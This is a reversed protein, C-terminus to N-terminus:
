GRHKAKRPGMRRARGEEEKTNMKLINLLKPALLTTAALIERGFKLGEPPRSGRKESHHFTVGLADILGLTDAAIFVPHMALPDTRRMHFYVAAEHSDLMMGDEAKRLFWQKWYRGAGRLPPLFVGAKQLLDLYTALVDKVSLLSVMRDLRAKDVMYFEEIDDRSSTPSALLKFHRLMYLQQLWDNQHHAVEKIFLPAKSFEADEQGFEAQVGYRVTMFGQTYNTDGLRGHKAIFAGVAGKVRQFHDANPELGLTRAYEYLRTFVRLNVFDKRKGRAMTALFEEGADYLLKNIKEPLKVKFPHTEPLRPLLWALAPIGIRELKRGTEVWNDPLADLAACLHEEFLSDRIHEAPTIRLMELEGDVTTMSTHPHLLKKVLRFRYPPPESFLASLALTPKKAKGKQEMERELLLLRQKERMGDGAMASDIMMIVLPMRDLFERVSPKHYEPVLIGSFGRSEETLAANANQQAPPEIQPQTAQQTAAGVKSATELREKEIRQQRRLLLERWKRNYAAHDDETHPTLHPRYPTEAM